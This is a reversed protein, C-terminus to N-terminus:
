RRRRFEIVFHVFFIKTVKILINQSVHVRIELFVILFSKFVVIRVLERTKSFDFVFNKGQNLDNLKEWITSM